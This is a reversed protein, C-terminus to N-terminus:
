LRSFTILNVMIRTSFFLQQFKCFMNNFIADNYIKFLNLFYLQKRYKKENSHCSTLKLHGNLFDCPMCKHEGQLVDVAIM